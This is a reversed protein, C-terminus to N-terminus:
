RPSFRYGSHPVINPQDISIPLAQTGALNEIWVTAGIGSAFVDASTSRMEGYHFELTGDDFIKVQYNYSDNRADFHAMNTWQFIWHAAPNNSDEAAAVRKWYMQPSPSRAPNLYADEWFPAVAGVPASGDPSPKNDFNTTTTSAFAMWGDNSMSVVPRAVSFYLPAPENTPLTIPVTIGDRGSTLNTIPTGTASIDFFSGAISQLVYGFSCSTRVGPTGLQPPASSFLQTAACNVPGAAATGVKIPGTDQVRATGATAASSFSFTPLASVKTLTATEATDNLDLGAIAVTVGADGNLAPDTSQGVVISAHPPVTGSLPFSGGDSIVLNFGALDVLTSTANSVELWEGTAAISANPRAMAETVALETGQVVSFDHRLLLLGGTLKVTGFVPGSVVPAVTVPSPKPGFFTFGKDNAPASPPTIAWDPRPGQIGTKFTVAATPVTKYEFDVQGTEHVKAQFTVAATGATVNNWQVVLIRVGGVTKVQWYVGAGAGVTLDAWYPAIAFPEIRGTPFDQPSTNVGNSHSALVLYGNTNVNVASRRQGFLTTLFPQPLEQASDSGVFALKTGSTSIDDFQSATTRTDVTSHPLGIIDTVGALTFSLQVPTRSIVTGTISPTLVVPNTVTVSATATAKENFSNDVTLTYTSDHNPYLTVSGTNQPSASAYVVGDTAESLTVRRANVAVWSLTVPSAASVTTNNATFSTISPVGVVELTATKEASGGRSDAAVLKYTTNAAPVALTLSGAAAQAPTASQFFVVDNASLTVTDAQATSWSVTFTQGSRGAMPAVFTLVSPIGRVPVVLNQVTTAGAADKATLTYAYFYGPDITAPVTEEYTGSAVQAPDTRTVLTGRGASSLTVESAGVTQWAISVTSGRAATTPTATLSTIRPTVTITTTATKGDAKLTYTTTVTPAVTLSGSGLQGNLSLAGGPSATITVGNADTASWTLLASEGANIEPPLGYFLLEHAASNVRVSVAQREVAGRLNSATLVFFSDENIQVSVSGSADRAGEIAVGRLNELKVENANATQWSLTVTAGRDVQALSATFSTIQPGPEILDADPAKPCGAAFLAFASLALASTLNTKMAAVSAKNHRSNM